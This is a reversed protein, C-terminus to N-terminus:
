ETAAQYVGAKTSDSYNVHVGTGVELFTPMDLRQVAL